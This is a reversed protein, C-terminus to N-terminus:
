ELVQQPTPTIELSSDSDFNVTKFPNVKYVRTDYENEYIVDAVKAILDETFDPYKEREKAGVM